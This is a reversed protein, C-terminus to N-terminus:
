FFGVSNENEISVSFLNKNLIDLDKKIEFNFNELATMTEIYPDYKRIDLM